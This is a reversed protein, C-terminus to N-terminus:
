RRTWGAPCSGGSGSPFNVTTTYPRKGFRLANADTNWRYIDIRSNRINIDGIDSISYPGQPGGSNVIEGNDAFSVSIQGGFQRLSGKSLGLFNPEVAVTGM